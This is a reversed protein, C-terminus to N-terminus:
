QHQRRHKHRGTGAEEEKPDEYEEEEGAVKHLRASWGDVGDVGGGGEGGGGVGGTGAEEEKPDEYEEEEEGAVVKSFGHAQVLQHLDDFAMRSIATRSIQPCLLLLLLLLLLHLLRQPTISTHM